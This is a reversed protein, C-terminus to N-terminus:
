VGGIGRRQGLELGLPHSTTNKTTRGGVPKFTVLWTITEVDVSHTFTAAISAAAGQVVYESRGPFDSPGSTEGATFGTGASITSIVFDDQLTFGFIYQGDTTPTQATSTIADTGTGPAAQNNNVVKDLPASLDQGSIQHVIIDGYGTQANTVTVQFNTGGNVVKSYWVRSHGIDADFQAAVPTYTNGGKNDTPTAITIVGDTTHVAVIILDDAAITGPLTATTTTTGDFGNAAGNASSIHTIAM